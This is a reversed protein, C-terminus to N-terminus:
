SSQPNKKKLYVFNQQGEGLKPNAIKAGSTVRITTAKKKMKWMIRARLAINSLQAGQTGHRAQM